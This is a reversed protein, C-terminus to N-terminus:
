DLEMLKVIYMFHGDINKRTMSYGFSKLAAISPYFHTNYKKYAKSLIEKIKDGSLTAEKGIISIVEQKIDNTM